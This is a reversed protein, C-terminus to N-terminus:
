ERASRRIAAAFTRVGITRASKGEDDSLAVRGARDISLRGLRGGVPSTLGLRSPPYLFLMLHEGPHYQEGTQWLGGWERVQIVQGRHVGRIAEQVRFTIQTTAPVNAADASHHKVSLVTGSFIMGSNRVIRVLGPLRITSHSAGLASGTSTALLLLVLGHSRM